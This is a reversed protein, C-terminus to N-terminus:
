IEDLDLDDLEDLSIADDAAPKPAEKKEAPEETKPTEKAAPEKVPEEQKAPAAETKAEAQMGKPKADIELSDVSMEMNNYTTNLKVRGQVRVIRGLLNDREEQFSGDKNAIIQDVPMNFAKSANDDWLACRINGSGDDMLVNAVIGQGGDKRDFVRPEYAQMVTGTLEVRYDGQALESIKKEAYEANGGEQRAASKVEVGEPNVAIESKDNLHVEARGNNEKVYGNKISVVDQPKLGSVTDALPGWATLRIVGSEDGGLFSCVKGEGESYKSQFTRLEYVQIVKLDQNVDRMGPLLDKVTRESAEPVLQVSLENAIIHCAGEESILGALQKMKDAVKGNVEELSMGTQAHIKKKIEEPPM